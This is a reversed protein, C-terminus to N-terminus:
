RAFCRPHDAAVASGVNTMAGPNTNTGILKLVHAERVLPAYWHLSAARIRLPSCGKHYAIAEADDISVTWIAAEAASGSLPLDISPTLRAGIQVDSAVTGPYAVSGSGAFATGDAVVSSTAAASSRGVITHWTSTSYSSGDASTSGFRHWRLPDLAVGGAMLLLMASYPSGPQIFSMAVQNATASTSYCRIAITIPYDSITSGITIGQRLYQTSGNFSYAM